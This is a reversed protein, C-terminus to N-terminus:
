INESKELVSNKDPNYSKFSLLFFCDPRVGAYRQLFLVLFVFFKGQNTITKSIFFNKCLVPFTPVCISLLTTSM